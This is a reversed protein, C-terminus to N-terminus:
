DEDQDKGKEQAISRLDDISSVVKKLAKFDKELCNEIYKMKEADAKIEEVRQLDRAWDKIEWDSYKGNQGYDNDKKGEKAPSISDM